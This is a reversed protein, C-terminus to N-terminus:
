PRVSLLSRHVKLLPLVVRELHGFPLERPALDAAALEDPQEADEPERRGNGSDERPPGRRRLRLRAVDPEQDGLVEPGVPLRVLVGGLRLEADVLLDGVPSM